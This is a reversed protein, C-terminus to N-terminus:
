EKKFSTSTIELKLKNTEGKGGKLKVYTPALDNQISTITQGGSNNSQATISVPILLVKDWDPNDAKWKAAWDSENWASGEAKKAEAKATKLENICTTVLRAINSFTYENASVNNHRATFSTINDPLENTEFFDKLDKKRILLVNSPVSMSFKYDSPQNYNVFSLKVSNLTDNTLQKAIEDYPITAQTFLGAPSKIYTCTKDDILRNISATDNSIRNAQLVEKTSAFATRWTYFTSDIDTKGVEKKKLPISTSDNLAYYNFQVQIAVEDIYLITGDGRDCTAYVGPFIKKFTESNKFADPNDRNLKLLYNGFKKSLPIVVHPSYLSNGNLDTGKRISDTISEDYATYTKSGLLSDPSYYRSAEINTYRNKELPKNLKYVSMRCANLSDGYWKSYFLVLRIGTISDKSLIGSKTEKNYVAPFRFNDTCNLETLFSCNIQTKLDPDTFRGLYGTSTRAFVSDTLFSETTVDFTTTHAEINDSDPLMGLGLTGTNDDCGFFALLTALFLLSTYKVRM